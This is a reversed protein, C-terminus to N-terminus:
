PAPMTASNRDAIKLIKRLAEAIQPDDTARLANECIARVRPFKPAFNELLQFAKRLAASRGASLRADGSFGHLAAIIRQIPPADGNALFAGWWVLIANEGEEPTLEAFSKSVLLPLVRPNQFPEPQRAVVKGAEPSGALLLTQLFVPASDANLDREMAAVWDEVREPHQRFTAAFFGGLVPVFDPSVRVLATRQISGFAASIREPEPHGAYNELWLMFEDPSRFGGEVAHASFGSFASLVLCFLFATLRRM